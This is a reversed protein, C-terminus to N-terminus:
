QTTEEVHGDAIILRRQALRKAQALDHTTMLITVGDALREQLLAEVTGARADDLGSTPEDLLLVRPANCLARILALRKREGTSLQAIPRTLIEPPLDLRDMLDAVADTDPFHAGALEAWWAPETAVYTM